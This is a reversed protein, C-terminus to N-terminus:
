LTKHKGKYRMHKNMQEGTFRLVPSGQHSLSLSDTCNLLRLLCPNSRWTLFIGQFLAHCGVGTNKGPSDHVSFGPPSYDMPDCLTPCSQPSKVLMCVKLCIFAPVTLQKTKKSHHVLQRQLLQGTTNRCSRWLQRTQTQIRGRSRLLQTVILLYSM